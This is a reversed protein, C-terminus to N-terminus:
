FERRKDERINSFHVVALFDTLSTVKEVVKYILIFVNIGSLTFIFFIAHKQSTLLQLVQLCRQQTPECRNINIDDTEAFGRPLTNYQGNGISPSSEDFALCM